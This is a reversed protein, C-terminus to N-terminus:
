PKQFRRILEDGVFLALLRSVAEVAGILVSLTGQVVLQIVCMLLSRYMDIVFKLVAEIVLIIDMLALGVGMVTQRAARLLEANTQMALYRPISQLISAGTALGGCASLVDHKLNAALTATSARTQVLHAVTFM